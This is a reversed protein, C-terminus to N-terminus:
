HFISEVACAFALEDQSWGRRVRFARVENTLIAM